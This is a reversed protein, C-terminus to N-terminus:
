ILIESILICNEFDYCRTIGTNVVTQRGTESQKYVVRCVVICTLLTPVSVLLISTFLGEGGGGGLCIQHDFWM